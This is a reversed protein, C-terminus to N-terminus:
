RGAAMEEMVMAATTVAMMEMEVTQIVTAAAVIMM